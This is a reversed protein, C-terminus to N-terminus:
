KEIGDCIDNLGKALKRAARVTLRCARPTGEAPVGVAVLLDRGFHEASVWREKGPSRVTVEHKTM